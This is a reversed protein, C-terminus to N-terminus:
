MSFLIRTRILLAFILLAGGRLVHDREYSAFVHVAFKVLRERIHGIRLVEIDNGPQFQDIRDIDISVPPTLKKESRNRLCAAREHHIAHNPVAQVRQELTRRSFLDAVSRCPNGRIREDM